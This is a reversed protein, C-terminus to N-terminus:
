SPSAKKAGKFLSKLLDEVVEQFPRTETAVSYKVLLGLADAVNMPKYQAKFKDWTEQDVTIKTMIQEKEEAM